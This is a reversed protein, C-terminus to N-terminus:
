RASSPQRAMADFRLGSGREGRGPRKRRAMWLYLRGDAGRAFQWGRTVQVGGAPIEEEYLRLAREPTLIRGRAGVISRDLEDWALMRARRLRVEPSGASLREPVLPVWFPPVATQLRYRWADAVSAVATTEEQASGDEGGLGAQLRRRLPRGTPTEIMEEIAWCLNAAEDRVFSVQELPAGDISGVLSPPLLLWPTQASEASPDGTLEFYAWPRAKGAGVAQQDLAAASKVRHVTGFADLIDVNSVRAISGM